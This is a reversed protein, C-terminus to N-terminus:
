IPRYKQRYHLKCLEYDTRKSCQKGKNPGTKLIKTCIYIFTGNGENQKNNNWADAAEDFDINVEFVPPPPTHLVVHDDTKPPLIGNDQLVVHDDTKPPLIGNDQLVVNLSKQSRTKM